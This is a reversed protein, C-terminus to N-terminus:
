LYDILINLFLSASQDDQLIYYITQTTESMYTNDSILNYPGGCFAEAEEIFEFIRMDFYIFDTTFFIVTYM